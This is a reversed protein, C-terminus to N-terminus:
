HGNQNRNKAIAVLPTQEVSMKKLKIIAKKVPKKFTTRPKSVNRKHM